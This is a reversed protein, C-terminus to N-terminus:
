PCAPTPVLTHLMFAPKSAIVRHRFSHDHEHHGEFADSPVLVAVCCVGLKDCSTRLRAAKREYGRTYFTVVWFTANARVRASCNSFSPLKVRRPLSIMAADHEYRPGIAVAAAIPRYAEDEEEASMLREETLATTDSGGTAADGETEGEDQESKASAEGEEDEGEDGEEGQQQQLQELQKESQSQPQRLKQPLPQAQGQAQAQPQQPQLPQQSQQPRLGQPPPRRRRQPPLLRGEEEEEEEEQEAKLWQSGTATHNAVSFALRNAPDWDLWILLAVNVLLFMMGSLLLIPELRKWRM